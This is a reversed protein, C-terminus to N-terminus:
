HPVTVTTTGQAQNGTADQCDVTLTYVRRSGNGAREARLNVTLPGTIEWDPSTDGDGTGNPPENSTVATVKCVPAPDCSDVASVAVTVLVMKHNPPKLVNPTAKVATITPATTDNVQVTTTDEDSQALGDIVRLFYQGTTDVGQTITVQLADGVLPGIRSGQQWQVV